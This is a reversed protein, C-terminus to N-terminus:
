SQLLRQQLCSKIIDIEANLNKGRYILSTDYRANWDDRSASFWNFSGVCLLNDDGIVIKSHVRNVLRTEIGNSVM